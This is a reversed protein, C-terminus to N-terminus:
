GLGLVTLFRIYINNLKEAFGVVRDAVGTESGPGLLTGEITAMM